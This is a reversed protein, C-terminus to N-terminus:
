KLTKLTQMAFHAAQESKACMQDQTFANRSPRFVVMLQQGDAVGVATACDFAGGSGRIHYDAAPFDDITVLKAEVNRKGSLWPEFGESTIAWIEYDFATKGETGDMLCQPSGKFADGDQTKTRQRKVKLQAIQEQTFLKCPDVGDLKLDKPRPPITVSPKSGGSSQGGGGTGAAVAQGPESDTCGTLAVACLLAVM